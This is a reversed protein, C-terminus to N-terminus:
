SFVVGRATFIAFVYYNDPLAICGFRITQVLFASAFRAAIKKVFFSLKGKV